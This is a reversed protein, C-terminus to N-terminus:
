HTSIPNARVNASLGHVMCGGFGRIERMRGVELRKALAPDEAVLAATNAALLIGSEPALGQLRSALNVAAGIPTYDLRPGSGWDGIACYGSAVGARTKLDISLGRRRWDGSLATLAAGIDICLWACRAASQWRAERAHPGAGQSCVSEDPARPSFRQSSRQEPFYVLAGDGLIKALVGGRREALEAITGIFDNLVDVLEAVPRSAVLEVFGVVDVFAVTLFVEEPPNIRTPREHVLPALDDPLYRAMRATSHRLVETEALAVRRRDTLRRVRKFSLFALGLLFSAVVMGGAVAAPDLSTELSRSHVILVLAVAVACPGLLALGGLATVATLVSLGIAIILWLDFGAVVAVAMVALCEAGHALRAPTADPSRWRPHRGVLRWWVVPWVATVMLPLWLWANGGVLLDAGIVAALGGYGLIRFALDPVPLDSWSRLAATIAGSRTELWGVDVM